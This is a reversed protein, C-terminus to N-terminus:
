VERLEMSTSWLLGDVARVPIFKLGTRTRTVTTTAPSSGSPITFTASNTALSNYASEITAKQADTLLTWSLLFTRKSGTNVNDFHVTSDAMEVMAGRFERGEEYGSIHPLTYIGLVPQAYAM